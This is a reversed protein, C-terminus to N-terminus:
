PGASDAVAQWTGGADTYPGYSPGPSFSGDPNVRWLTAQGDPNRWLIRSVGNPGTALAAAQWTGGGDVYPGYPASIGFSGNANVQWLTARGDPNRWLIHAVNDPGVSCAVAQWTGGADTYPGYPQSTDTSGDAYVHWLTARGDPNRWLIRSVGNPGTALAVAQWLGGADSYPGYPQSTGHTGDPNVYWVTARGDPNRWLIHAVNDSGVSCAM